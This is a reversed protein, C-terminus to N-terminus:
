LASKSGLGEDDCVVFGGLDCVGEGSRVAGGSVGSAVADAVTNAFTSVPLVTALAGSIQVVAYVLERFHVVLLQVVFGEVVHRAEFGVLAERIGGEREGIAQM